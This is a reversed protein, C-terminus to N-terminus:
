ATGTEAHPSAVPKSEPSGRQRLFVSLAVISFVALFESQWNQFSQFWFESTRLFDATSVAQGGHAIQEQSYERAGGIAHLVFSFIFLLLLAISLSYEYVKLVPGGQRVPWPVDQRNEAQRPDEDVAEEKDPDKSESSGRQFLFVTFLVYAGMQLYESEWKEFTAEVFHGTRLYEAYSIAAEGHERQDDNYVASGTISQGVLFLAFLGFMVLSLSNDRLLRKV